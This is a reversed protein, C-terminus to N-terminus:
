SLKEIIQQITQVQEETLAAQGKECRAFAEGLNIRIDTLTETDVTIDTMCSCVQDPDYDLNILIKTIAVADSGSIEFREGAVDIAATMNGCYGEVPDEVTQEEEAFRHSHDICLEEQAAKKDDGMAVSNSANGTEPAEAAPEEPVAEDATIEQSEPLPAMPAAAAPAEAAANKQMMVHNLLDGRVMMGLGFLLVLCAAMPLFRKWPVVNNKPSSRVRDAATILDSPLLTLADHLDHVTM